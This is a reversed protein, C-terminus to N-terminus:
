RAVEADRRPYKSRLEFYGELDPEQADILRAFYPALHDNLRPAQADHRINVSWDYRLVEWLCRMGLRHGREKARRARAVLEGYVHPNDACFRTFQELRDHRTTPNM